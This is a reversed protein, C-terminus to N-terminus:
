KKMLKLTKQEGNKTTATLLYVGHDLALNNILISSNSNVSQEYVLKGTIDCMRISVQMKESSSVIINAEEDMPNPYVLLDFLPTNELSIIEPTEETTIEEEEAFDGFRASVANSIRIKCEDSFNGWTKYVRSRVRVKYTHGPLVTPSLSALPLYKTYTIKTIVQQTASDTLEFEYGSSMSIQVCSLTANLSVNSKNCWKSELKSNAVGNLAPNQMLGILCSAGYEGWVGGVKARARVNYQTNWLLTPTTMNPACIVGSSYATAYVNGTLVDTFEFQYQTAGTVANCAFQANMTFNLKGCDCNRLKTTPITVTCTNVTVTMSATSACQGATPTFTYTTTATNNIAPSWQGTINNNSTTPLTFSAGSCIAQVQTFTPTISNNVTVVTASSTASCGNSNSVVVTYSGSATATYSASTANNINNGNLKWQYSLGTGTNANLNVSGGSCFTTTSAPTISATPATTNASIVSSATATCGNSGTVTVSYTGASTVTKTASTTGDNWLYIGGGSATLAISTTTCTLTTTPQTINATPPTNITLHLTAVSDCGNSATTTYTYTGSSTYTNGNWTYSSACTSYNTSSTSSGTVNVQLTCSQGGINIAFSAVGCSTPTGTIQYTLSGNGNAFTGASLTATLGSVGTSTITQGNHTGGNGGTYSITSSANSATGVQISGTISATGCDITNISGQPSSVDNLCRVSYGVWKYDYDRRVEGSYYLLDRYRAHSNSLQTSSWWTGGYGLGNDVNLSRAGGPLGSFGISNDALTNPSQWYQTGTSKIKGGAISSQLGTTSPDFSSDLYEILINWETDSPVHWGTPCLNRNDAVAYWNYLKGYPCNYSASDNNYWCTAGTTLGSWTTNNTVLAIPQGNRYHSVKLNEAMWEQNGIQITKYMNGDQDTMSGYNLNPNHVNTAGCTATSTPPTVSLTLTVTSDCGAASTFVETYTGATTLTQTGLTYTQGQTINASISNSVNPIINVVTASSTASCGNNNTVVVSYSGATTATYSANTANNINSGNLKWQYSLGTGTNANLVASEGVCIITIPAIINAAPATTNSTIIRNATATCGNSSTVTVSYTGASTVTKTASTTGDNWLYTGGGTATLLLSPNNCTIIGSSPSISASISPNVIVRITDTVLCSSVGYSYTLINTGISANVPNFNNGVIGSGSWTGGIPTFGTLTVQNANACINFGNGANVALPNAVTVTKTDINTCGTMPDVYQYTLITSGIGAVSPNFVGGGTVGAGTWLGTSPGYGGLQIQTNSYCFGEDLGANVIPLPNVTVSTFNSTASCGNNNTVVVSYSGATTATYSANTANNINSGNLKWQYSLGTGTNANLVASEGVCIITIPAIINAAPATTNSTIIRNATATCGNSSTVTVSYTGASTVTKTASTTGDNWLYTGGGTATLLLSPNNCTIIGSSPSISASISPNVIVHITDTVLCSGVGYSYTLINTGINANVPNFNNGVIGSGSWTGGAPTFGTLAVQSANACINFGNGANVALPNIVTVTKTDINTCGTIASTFQYTLIKIGLGAISPNLVGTPTVGAGTWIGGVPSFGVLQNQTNTNCFQDDTGANVIPLPNITLNLTVISDCGQANILKITDTSNNATYVTNQKAVWTYSGCASVTFTSSTPNCPNPQQFGQTLIINGNSLTATFTEGLTYSVSFNSGTYSNGGSSIVKQSISQAFLQCSLLLALTTFLQRM